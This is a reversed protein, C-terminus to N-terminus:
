GMGPPKRSLISLVQPRVEALARRLWPRAAMKSTGLELWRGYKLNTGVRGRLNSEDVDFAVSRRLHGLQKRPPEGPQSVVAGYIRGRKKVSYKKGGYSYSHAKIASATGEASLLFKARDRVVMCAAKINRAFQRRIHSKAEDGAWQKLKVAM